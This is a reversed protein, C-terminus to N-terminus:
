KKKDDVFNVLKWSYQGVGARIEKTKKDVLIKGSPVLVGTSKGKDASLELEIASLTLEKSTSMSQSEAPSIPRNTVLRIKRIGKPSNPFLWIHKVEINPRGSIGVTGRTPMKDFAKLLGDNGEKEFAQILADRDAQTSYSNIVITLPISQGSQTGTSVANCLITEPQASLLGAFLILAIVVASARLTIERKM